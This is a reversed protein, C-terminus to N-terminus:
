VAGCLVGDFSLKHPQDTARVDPTFLLFGAFLAFACRECNLHEYISEENCPIARSPLTDPHNM